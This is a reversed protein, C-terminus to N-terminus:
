TDGGTLSLFVDELRGRPTVAQVRIGVAVLWAVLDATELDGLDVVLGTGQVAIRDEPLSTALVERARRRDDVEIVVTRDAGVLDDVSGTARLRGRQMVAVHTCMQEVEALLHSSVLVTHGEHGLRALLQRMARIQEPDLGDTPEDLVLLEPRGLLAQAIALRQKMGHSYTRVPKRIADGLAAIDLVWPLEATELAAGGARWYLELNDRGSLEPVFGPGEVLAGVRHLVPHGPRMREGFLEISGATPTSLGLLMRLATTKGAGNPGLLGFVQQHGVTLDLDDVALHGDRFRKTLGRLVIPAPERVAVQPSGLHGAAAEPDVPASAEVEGGAAGRRRRTMRDATAVVLGLVALGGLVVPALGVTTATATPVTPVDLYTGDRGTTIRYLAPTRRNAFAQDTSAVVLQLRHGAELRHSLTGLEVEVDAPLAALRVPTVAQQLLRTEGRPGVDNLRVFLQAGDPGGDLRLRLRPAGLVTLDDAVAESTFTAAQGPIDTSPLLSALGSAGPLATLAAPQGGPPSVIPSAGTVAGTPEGALLAGDASTTFRRNAGDTPAIAAADRTTGGTTDTWTFQVDDADPASGDDRLWRDLWADMESRVRDSGLSGVQEHGGPIWRLRVPAGAAALEEANRRSETLDFLTDEQGQLLLVPAAVERLRGAPSSRDLVTQADPALVGDVASDAYIRCIEATFRGCGLIGGLLDEGDSDVESPADAPAADTPMTTATFLLSTWGTKLVGPAEPVGNPALSRSLSHWAAVAVIADLRPERSAALLATGGGYSGGAIGVRPDGAADLLVEPRRALVDILVSVDAIERDIDALAVEGESAGFGRASWALVVYGDAALERATGDVNARDGLFGHALLIAPAPEDEAGRPLYLAADLEISTDDDPAAPVPVTLPEVTPGARAVTALAVLVLAVVGGLVVWGVVAPARM